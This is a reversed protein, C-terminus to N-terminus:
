HLSNHLGLLHERGQLSILFNVTDLLNDLSVSMSDSARSSYTRFILLQIQMDSTMDVLDVCIKEPRGPIFQSPATVLYGRFCMLLATCGKCLVM